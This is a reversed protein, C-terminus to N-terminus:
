AELIERAEAVDAAIREKLAEVSDFRIEGRLFRVFEVELDQGYIEEDLGLLHVELIRKVDGGAITPRYGLNGVGNWSDGLGWVKVAYVGTPPLQESHVTLNATPFGITRGIQRGEIVTGLVTYNRGLLSRAVGFDGAAVAERIRTSSVVIGDVEVIGTANLAFGFEQALSRLMEVTGSRGRGFRFDEGVSISGIEAHRALERIFEEGTWESIERDFPVALLCPIRLLRSLIAAKHPTATLLRPAHQPCLVTVPHPDFTVVVVAGGREQRSELARRIVAQHGLHVGDFVGIALHVPVDFRELSAIDRLVDM